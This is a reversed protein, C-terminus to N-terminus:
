ALRRLLEAANQPPTWVGDETYRGPLARAGMRVGERIRARLETRLADEGAAVLWAPVDITVSYCRNGGKGDWLCRLTADAGDFRIMTFSARRGWGYDLLARALSSEAGPEGYHDYGAAYLSSIEADIRKM